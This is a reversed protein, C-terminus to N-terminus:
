VLLAFVIYFPKSSFELIVSAEFSDLFLKNLLEPKKTKIM